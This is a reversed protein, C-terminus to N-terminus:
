SFSIFVPRLERWISIPLAELLYEGPINKGVSAVSLTQDPRVSEVYQLVGMKDDLTYEMFSGTKPEVGIHVGPKGRLINQWRGPNRPRLTDWPATMGKAQLRYLAYEVGHLPLQLKGAATEDNICARIKCTEPHTAPYLTQHVLVPTVLHKNETLNELSVWGSLRETSVHAFMGETAVVRVAEGYHFTGIRTDFALVPRTYCSTATQLVYAMTESFYPQQKITDALQLVGAGPAALLTPETFPPRATTQPIPESVGFLLFDRLDVVVAKFESIM